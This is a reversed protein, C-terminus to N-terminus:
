GEISVITATFLSSKPLPSSHKYYVKEHLRRTRIPLNEVDLEKNGNLELTHLSVMREFQDGITRLLNHSLDVSQLTRLEYM